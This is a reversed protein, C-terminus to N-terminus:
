QLQAFNKKEKLKKLAEWEKLTTSTQFLRVEKSPARILQDFDFKSRNPRLCVALWLVVVHHNQDDDEFWIFM